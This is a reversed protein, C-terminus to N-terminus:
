GCPRSSPPTARATRRCDALFRAVNIGYVEDTGSTPFVVSQGYLAYAGARVLGLLRSGHLSLYRLIEAAEASGPAFFGSALAYPVVLNWYSGSRAETLSDYPQEDDLLRAPLFLSGDPLRRESSDVAHRLGTELRAALRRATAALPARGTEAWVSAMARLGQWVMTQSHVGLVLDPIDSSYREPDLLGSRSSEIQRGLATVYGRLVPTAAAVVARDRYLRYYSAFALLREGRKWNAYPNAPRTLSTQLISRAVAAFGQEGLVEAVDVGEPFSFEEYPNGISYRWTLELDQIRLARVADDIRREPVSITMGESLRRQWYRM